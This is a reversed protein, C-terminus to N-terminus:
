ENAFYGKEVKRSFIFHETCAFDASASVTYLQPGYFPGMCLSLLLCQDSQVHPTVPSISLNFRTGSRYRRRFTKM